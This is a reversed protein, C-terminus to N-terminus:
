PICLFARFARWAADNASFTVGDRAGRRPELYLQLAAWRRATVGPATADQWFLTKPPLRPLQRDEACPLGGSGLSVRLLEDLTVFDSYRRFAVHEGAILPVFLRYLTFPRGREPRVVTTESVLVAQLDGPAQAVDLSALLRRLRAVHDARVGSPDGRQHLARLGKHRFSRIMIISTYPWAKCKKLYPFTQM